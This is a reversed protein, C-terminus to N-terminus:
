RLKWLISPLLVGLLVCLSSTMMLIAVSIEFIVFRKGYMRSIPKSIIMVISGIFILGFNFVFYYAPGFAQVVIIILFAGAVIGTLTVPSYWNIKQRKRQVISRPIKNQLLNAIEEMEDFGYLIISKNGLSLNLLYIDGSPKETIVLKIIKEFPITESSKGSARVISEDSLTISTENMKKLLIRSLIPFGIETILTAILWAELSESIPQNTLVSGTIPSFLLFIFLFIPLIIQTTLYLKKNEQIAKESFRYVKPQAM